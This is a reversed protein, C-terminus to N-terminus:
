DIHVGFVAAVRSCLSIPTGVRAVLLDDAAPTSCSQDHYLNIRYTPAPTSTSRCRIRRPADAAAIELIYTVALAILV